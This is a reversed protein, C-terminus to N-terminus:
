GTNEKEEQPINGEALLAEKRYIQRNNANFEHKIQILLKDLTYIQWAVPVFVRKGKRETTSLEFSMLLHFAERTIKPDKSPSFYFTRFTQDKTQSSYTKCDLYVTRGFEDEVQIDPYGASKIKGRKSVPKDAKLGMRRLAEVVFPEIHNGAENPRATPIGENFAKQGGVQAAKSLLDLLKKNEDLSRDFTLVRHGTLAKIALPFPIGKMPELFKSITLELQRIYEDQSNM